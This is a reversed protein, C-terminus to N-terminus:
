TSYIWFSKMSIFANQHAQLKERNYCDVWSSMYNGILNMQKETVEFIITM